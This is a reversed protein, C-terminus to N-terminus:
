IPYAVFGKTTLKLVQDFGCEKALVLMEDFCYDLFRNNHCDSSIIINCNRTRLEKLVFPDPYATTRYGRAIAGTNIEFINFKETLVDLASLMYSRYERSQTDFLDHLETHKSILDFHGVIDCEKVLEPLLSLEEYYRKALLMGNGDFYKNIINKVDKIGGDFTIPQGDFRLYHLSGIVYDYEELNEYPSYADFEIGCFVDIIDAYKKKLRAIEKKYEITGEISMCASSYPHYSHGSFGIGDFGIEIARKVTDEYTNSGDDLVGHTHLNQNYKKLLGLRQYEGGM